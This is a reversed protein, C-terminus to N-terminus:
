RNSPSSISMKHLSCSLQDIEDDETNTESDSDEVWFKGRLLFEVSHVHPQVHHASSSSASMVMTSYHHERDLIRHDEVEDGDEKGTADDLVGPALTLRRVHVKCKGMLLLREGAEGGTFTTTPKM